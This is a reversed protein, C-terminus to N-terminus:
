FSTFSLFSFKVVKLGELGSRLIQSKVLSRLSDINVLDPSTLTKDLRGRLEMIMKKKEM